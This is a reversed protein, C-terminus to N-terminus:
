VNPKLILKLYTELLVKFNIESHNVDGEKVILRTLLFCFTVWIFIGHPQPDRHWTSHVTWFVNDWSLKEKEHQPSTSLEQTLKLPKGSSATTQIQNPETEHLLNIKSEALDLHHAHMSRAQKAESSCRCGSCHTNSTKVKFFCRRFESKQNTKSSYALWRQTLRRILVSSHERSLVEPFNNGRKNLCCCVVCCIFNIVRRM